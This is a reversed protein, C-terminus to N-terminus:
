HYDHRRRGRRREIASFSVYTKKGLREEYIRYFDRSLEESRGLEAQMKAGAEWLSDIDNLDIGQLHRDIVKQAGGM